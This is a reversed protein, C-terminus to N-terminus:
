VDEGGSEEGDEYVEKPHKRITKHGKQVTRKYM